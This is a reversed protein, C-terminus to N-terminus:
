LENKKSVKKRGTIQEEIWEVYFAVRIFYMAMHFKEIDEQLPKGRACPDCLKSHFAHSIGIQVARGERDLQVLPGGSDGQCIVFGSDPPTRWLCIFMGIRQTEYGFLSGFFWSYLRGFTTQMYDHPNNYILTGNFSVWGTQLIWGIDYLGYGAFLATEKEGHKYMLPPLCVSCVDPGFVIPRSLQVLAIDYSVGLSNWKFLHHVKVQKAEYSPDKFIVPKTGLYVKVINPHSTANTNMFCHAATLVWHENLISGTCTLNKDSQLIIIMVAWPIEGQTANKRNFNMLCSSQHCAFVHKHQCKSGKALGCDKDTVDPCHQREIARIFVLLCAILLLILIKNSM